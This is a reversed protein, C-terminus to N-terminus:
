MICFKELLTATTLSEPFRLRPLNMLFIGPLPSILGNFMGVLMMPNPLLRLAMLVCKKSRMKSSGARTWVSTTFSLVYIGEAASCNGWNL